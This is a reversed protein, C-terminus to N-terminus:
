EPLMSVPKADAAPLPVQGDAEADSAAAESSGGRLAEEVDVEFTICFMTRWRTQGVGSAGSSEVDASEVLKAAFKRLAIRNGNGESAVLRPDVGAAAGLGVWEATM